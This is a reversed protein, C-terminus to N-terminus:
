TLPHATTFPNEMPDGLGVIVTGKPVYKSGIVKWGVTGALNAIIQPIEQELEAKNAEADQLLRIAAELSEINLGSFVASNTYGNHEENM